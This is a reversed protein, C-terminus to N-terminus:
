KSKVIAHEEFDIWKLQIKLMINMACVFEHLMLHM